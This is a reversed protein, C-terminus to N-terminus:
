KSAGESYYRQKGKQYIDIKFYARELLEAEIAPLAARHEEVDLGMVTLLKDWGCHTCVAFVCEGRPELELTGPRCKRCYNLNFRINKM